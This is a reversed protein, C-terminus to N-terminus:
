SKREDRMLMKVAGKCGRNYSSRQGAIGYVALKGRSVFSEVSM